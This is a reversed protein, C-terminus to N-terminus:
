KESSIKTISFLTIFIILNYIALLINYGMTWEQVYAIMYVAILSSLLTAAGLVLGVQRVSLGLYYLHHTTHGRDGVFPSQGRAIRNIFVTSTDSIPVIFATVIVWFSKSFSINQTIGVEMNWFFLIGVTALIAGLFQSGSDGMYMRSPHWNYKLFGILAGIVGTITIILTYNSYALVLLLVTISSLVLLSITTSIADMNDILNISNMIGLVWVVTISYTLFSSSEVKTVLGMYCLIVAVIAQGLFKFLPSPSFLDDILGVLFGITGTLLFVFLIKLNSEDSCLFLSLFVSLLFVLFFIVGGYIPKSQSSFRVADQSSKNFNFRHSNRVLYRGIFISILVSLLGWTLLTIKM